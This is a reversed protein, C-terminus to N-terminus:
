YSVILPRGTLKAARCIIADAAFYCFFLLPYLTLTFLLTTYAPGKHAPSVPSM